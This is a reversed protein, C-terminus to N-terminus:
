IGLLNKIKIIEEEKWKAKSQILCILRKEPIRLNKVIYNQSEGLYKLESKIESIFNANETETM